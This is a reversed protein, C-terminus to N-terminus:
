GARRTVSAIIADVEPTRDNAPPAPAPPPKAGLRLVADVVDSTRVWRRQGDEILQVGRSTCWRRMALSNRFAFLKAIENTVQVVPPLAGMGASALAGAESAANSRVPPPM